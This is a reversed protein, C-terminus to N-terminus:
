AETFILDGRVIYRERGQDTFPLVTHCLTHPFLLIKGAEPKIRLTIEEDYAQRHWDNTQGQSNVTDKDIFAIEGTNCDNFYGVLSYKTAYRLLGEQAVKRLAAPPMDRVEFDSDYHPFHEGGEKYRMFRFYKSVNEFKLLGHKDDQILELVEANLIVDTLFEAFQGDWACFRESGAKENAESFLGTVNVPYVADNAAWKEFAEKLADLLQFRTEIEIVGNSYFKVGYVSPDPLDTFLAGTYKVNPSILERIYEESM